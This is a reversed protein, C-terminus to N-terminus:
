TYAFINYVHIQHKHEKFSLGNAFYYHLHMRNSNFGLVLVTCHTLSLYTYTVSSPLTIRGRGGMGRTITSPSTTTSVIVHMCCHKSKYNLIMGTKITLVRIAAAKIAAACRLTRVAYEYTVNNALTQRM